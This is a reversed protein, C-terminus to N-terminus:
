KLNDRASGQYNSLTKKNTRMNRNRRFRKKREVKGGTTEPIVKLDYNSFDRSNSISIGIPSKNGTLVEEGEDYKVEDEDGQSSKYIRSKQIGLVGNPELHTSTKISQYAISSHSEQLLFRPSSERLTQNSLLSKKPDTAISKKLTSSHAIDALHTSSPHPHLKPALTSPTPDETSKKRDKFKQFNINSKEFENIAIFASHADSSPEEVYTNKREKM